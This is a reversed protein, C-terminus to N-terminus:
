EDFQIAGSAPLARSTDRMRVLDSEGWETPIAARRDIEELQTQFSLIERNIDRVTSQTLNVPVPNRQLQLQLQNLKSILLSIRARVAPTNYAMPISNQMVAALNGLETAKAQAAQISHQPKQELARMFNRWADWQAILTSSTANAPESPFVWQQQVTKFVEIQKEQLKKQELLEREDSQCATVLVFTSLLLRKFNQM